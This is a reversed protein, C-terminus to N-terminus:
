HFQGNYYVLLFLLILSYIYICNGIIRRVWVSSGSFRSDTESKLAILFYGFDM